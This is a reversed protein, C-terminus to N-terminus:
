RCCGGAGSLVQAVLQTLQAAALKATCPVTFTTFLMDGNPLPYDVLVVQLGRRWDQASIARWADSHAALALLTAFRQEDHQAGSAILGQASQELRELSYRDVGGYEDLATEALPWCGRLDGNSDVSYLYRSM